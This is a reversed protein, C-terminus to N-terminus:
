SLFFKFTKKHILKAAIREAIIILLSLIFPIGITISPHQLGFQAASVLKEIYVFVSSAILIGLFSRGGAFALVLAIWGRGASQNPVFAGLQLSLILGALSALSGSVFLMKMKLKKTNVGLDELLQTDSGLVRLRIGTKSFRAFFILFISCSFVSLLVSARLVIPSILNEDAITIISEGEFFFSSLVSVIGALLLNVSLGLIFINGKKNLALYAIFKVIIGGLLISLGISAAAGWSSGTLSICLVGLFAGFLMLGEIGINLLGSFESILAALGALLLPAVIFFFDLIKASINM